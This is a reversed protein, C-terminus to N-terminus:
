KAGANQLYKKRIQEAKIIENKPTKQTKKIMGHTVVVLRNKLEDREIFCYLRYSRHSYHCRFEWINSNLKKFIEHDNIFQAKRINFYMKERAKDEMNNMFTVAEYLFVVEFREKM